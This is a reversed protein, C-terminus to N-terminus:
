SDIASRSSTAEGAHCDIAELVEDIAGLVGAVREISGRWISVNGDALAEAAVVEAPTVFVGVVGAPNSCCQIAALDSSVPRRSKSRTPQHSRPKIQDLRSVKNPPPPCDRAGDVSTETM